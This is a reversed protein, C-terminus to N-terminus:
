KKNVIKAKIKLAAKDAQKRFSRKIRLFLSIFIFESSIVIILLIWFIFKAVQFPGGLWPSFAFLGILILFVASIVTGVILYGKIFDTAQEVVFGGPNQIGEKVKRKIFFLDLIGM